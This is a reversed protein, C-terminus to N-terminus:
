KLKPSSTDKQKPAEDKPTSTSAAGAAARTLQFAATLTRPGGVADSAGGMAPAKPKADLKAKEEPLFKGFNSRTNETVKDTKVDAVVAKALKVDKEIKSEPVFKSFFGKREEIPNNRVFERSLAGMQQEDSFRSTQAANLAKRGAENQTIYQMGTRQALIASRDPHANIFEQTYAAMKDKQVDASKHVKKMVGKRQEQVSNKEAHEILTEGNKSTPSNKLVDPIADINTWSQTNRYIFAMAPPIDKPALLFEAGRTNDNKNLNKPNTVKASAELEAVVDINQMKFLIDLAFRSCSCNDMQMAATDTASAQYSYMTATPFHRQISRITEMESPDGVADISVVHLKNDKITIDFPTWHAGCQAAIQFRDGNQFNGNDVSQKLAALFQDVERANTVPDQVQLVFINVPKDKLNRKETKAAIVTAVTDANWFKDALGPDQGQAGASNLM